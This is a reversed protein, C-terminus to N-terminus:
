SGEEEPCVDVVNDTTEMNSLSWNVLTLVLAFSPSFKIQNNGGTLIVPGNYVMLDYKYAIDSDHENKIRTFAAQLHM